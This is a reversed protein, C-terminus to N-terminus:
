PRPRRTRCWCPSPARRSAPPAPSRQPQLTEYIRLDIVYLLGAEAAADLAPTWAGGFLDRWTEVDAGQVKRPLILNYSRGYRAITPFFAETAKDPQDRGGDGGVRGSAPLGLSYADPLTTWRWRGSGPTTSRSRPSTTVRPASTTASTSSRRPWTPTSRRRTAPAPPRAPARAGSARKADADREGFLFDYARATAGGITYTRSLGQLAQEYVKEKVGLKVVTDLMGNIDVPVAPVHEFGLERLPLRHAVSESAATAQTAM